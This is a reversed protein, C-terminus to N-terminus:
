YFLRVSTPSFLVVGGSYLSKQTEVETPKVRIKICLISAAAPSAQQFKSAYISTVCVANGGDRMQSVCLPRGNM